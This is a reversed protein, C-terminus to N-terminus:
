GGQTATIIMISDNQAVFSEHKQNNNLYTSDFFVNFNQDTKIKVKNSAKEQYCSITSAM